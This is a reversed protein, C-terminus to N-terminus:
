GVYVFISLLKRKGLTLFSMENRTGTFSFTPNYECHGQSNTYAIDVTFSLCVGVSMVRRCLLYKIHEFEFYGNNYQLSTLWSFTSLLPLSIFAIPQPSVSRRQDLSLPPIPNTHTHTHAHAFLFYLNRIYRPHNQSPDDLTQPRSPHIKVNSSPFSYVFLTWLVSRYLVLLKCSTWRRCRGHKAM